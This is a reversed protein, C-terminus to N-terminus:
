CVGLWGLSEMITAARRNLQQRGPELSTVTCCAVKDQHMVRLAILLLSHYLHRLFQISFCGSIVLM